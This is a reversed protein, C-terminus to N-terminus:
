KLIYAEITESGSGSTKAIAPSLDADYRYPIFETSYEIKRGYNIYDSGHNYIVFATSNDLAVSDAYIVNYVEILEIEEDDILTSKLETGKIEIGFGCLYETHAGDYLLLAKNRSLVTLYLYGTDGFENETLTFSEGLRCGSNKVTCVVGHIGLMETDDSYGHYIILIENESLAGCAYASIFGECIVDDELNIWGDSDFSYVRCVLAYDILSVCFIRTYTSGDVTIDSLRALSKNIGFTLAACQTDDLMLYDHIYISSSDYIVTNGYLHLDESVGYAIFIFMEDDNYINKHCYIAELFYGRFQDQNILTPLVYAFIFVDTTQNICCVTMGYLELGTDSSESSKSYAIFVYTVKEYDDPHGLSVASIGAVGSGEGDLRYFSNVDFGGYSNFTVCTATLVNNAQTDCFVIFVTEEDLLVAKLNQFTRSSTIHMEHEVTVDGNLCQVFDGASINEGAAVMYSEILGNISSGASINRIADPFEDAVIADTGGTKERIADAVDTFLSTLTEHTNSM